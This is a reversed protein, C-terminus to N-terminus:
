SRKVLCCVVYSKGASIGHAFDALVGVAHAEVYGLSLHVPAGVVGLAQAHQTVSAHAALNTSSNRHGNNPM